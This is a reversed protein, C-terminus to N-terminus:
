DLLPTLIQYQLAKYNHLSVDIQWYGVGMFLMFREEIIIEIGNFYLRSWDFLRLQSWFEGDKRFLM